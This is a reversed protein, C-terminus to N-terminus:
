WRNRSYYRFIKQQMSLLNLQLLHINKQMGAKKSMVGIVVWMVVALEFLIPQVEKHFGEGQLTYFAEMLPLATGM